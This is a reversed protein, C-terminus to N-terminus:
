GIWCFLLSASTGEISAAHIIRNCCRGANNGRHAQRRRNCFVCASPWWAGGIGIRTRCDVPEPLSLIGCCSDSLCAHVGTMIVEGPGIRRQTRVVREAQMWGKPGSHVTTVVKVSGLEAGRDSLWNVLREMSPDLAAANAAEGVQLAAPHLEQARGAAAVQLLLLLLTSPASRRMGTRPLRSGTM